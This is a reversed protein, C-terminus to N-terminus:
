PLDPSPRGVEEDGFPIQAIIYWRGLLSPLRLERQVAQMPAQLEQDQDWHALEAEARKLSSGYRCPITTLPPYSFTLASAAAAGASAM